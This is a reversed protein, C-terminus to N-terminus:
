SFWLLKKQLLDLANWDISSQPGPEGNQAESTAPLGDEVKCCTHCMQATRRIRLDRAQSRYGADGLAYSDRFSQHSGRSTWGALARGLHSGHRQDLIPVPPLEQLADFLNFM